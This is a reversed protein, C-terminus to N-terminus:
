VGEAINTWLRNEVGYQQDATRREPAATRPNSTASVLSAYNVSSQAPETPRVLGSNGVIGTAIPNAISNEDQERSSRGV